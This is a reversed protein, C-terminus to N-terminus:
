ANRKVKHPATLTAAYSGIPQFLTQACARGARDNVVLLHALRWGEALPAQWLMSM